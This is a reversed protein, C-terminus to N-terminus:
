EIEVVMRQYRTLQPIGNDTVECIIHIPKGKCANGAGIFGIKAM